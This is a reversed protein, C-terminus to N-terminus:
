LFEYTYTGSPPVGFMLKAQFSKRKFFPFENLVSKKAHKFNNDHDWAVGTSDVLIWILSVNEGFMMYIHFRQSGFSELSSNTIFKLYFTVEFRNM